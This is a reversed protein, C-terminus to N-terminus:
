SWPRSRGRVPSAALQDLYCGMTATMTPARAAIEEWTVEPVAGGHRRVPRLKAVGSM